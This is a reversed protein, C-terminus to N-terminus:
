VFHVCFCRQPLYPVLQAETFELTWSFPYPRLPLEKEGAGRGEVGPGREQSWVGRGGADWAVGARSARREKGVGSGRM